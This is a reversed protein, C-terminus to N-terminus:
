ISPMDDPTRLQDPSPSLCSMCQETARQRLSRFSQCGDRGRYTHQAVLHPKCNNGLMQMHAMAFEPSALLLKGCHRRHSSTLRAPSPQCLARRRMQIKCAWCPSRPLSDLICSCGIAKGHLMIIDVAQKCRDRCALLALRQLQLKSDARCHGRSCESFRWYKLKCKIQVKATSGFRMLRQAM